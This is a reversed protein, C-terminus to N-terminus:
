RLVVAIYSKTCTVTGYFKPVCPELQTIKRPVPNILAHNTDITFATVRNGLSRFRWELYLSAKHRYCYKYLIKVTHRKTKTTCSFTKRIKAAVVCVHHLFINFINEQKRSGFCARLFLDILLIDCSRDLVPEEEELSQCHSFIPFIYCCYQAEDWM